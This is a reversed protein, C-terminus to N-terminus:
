ANTEEKAKMTAQLYADVFKERDFNPNTQELATQVHALAIQFVLDGVGAIVGLAVDPNREIVNIVARNKVQFAAGLADAIVKFDKRTAAM